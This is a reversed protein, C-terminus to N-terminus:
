AGSFWLLLKGNSFFSSRLDKRRKAKNIEIIASALFSYKMIASLNTLVTQSDHM